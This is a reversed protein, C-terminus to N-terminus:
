LSPKIQPPPNTATNCLYSHNPSVCCCFRTRCFYKKATPKKKQNFAATYMIKSSIVQNYKFFSVGLGKPIKYIKFFYKILIYRTSEKKKKKSNSHNIEAWWLFLFITKTQTEFYIIWVHETQGKKTANITLKKKKLPWSKFNSSHIELNCSSGGTPTLPAGDSFLMM